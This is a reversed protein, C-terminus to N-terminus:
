AAIETEDDYGKTKV